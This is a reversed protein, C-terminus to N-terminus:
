AHDKGFATMETIRRTWGKGFTSFTDLSELYHQRYAQYADVAKQPGLMEVWAKVQKLTNAGIAGDTVAGCLGQLAKAARGPGSNVAFDFVCAALGPSIAALEDGKVKDWYGKRYIALLHDDPIKRLEDKTAPRGLFDSYTQLTVGKMTAGGPDKPHDAWGGEHHLTETLIKPFLSM